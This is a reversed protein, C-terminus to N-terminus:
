PFEVCGPVLMAGVVHSQQPSRLSRVSHIVRASISLSRSSFVVKRGKPSRLLPFRSLERGGKFQMLVSVVTGLM